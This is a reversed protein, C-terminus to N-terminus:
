VLSLRHMHFFSFWSFFRIFLSLGIVMDFMLTNVEKLEIVRVPLVLFSWGGEASHSVSLSARLPSLIDMYMAQDHVLVEM